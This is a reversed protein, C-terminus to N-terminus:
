NHITLSTSIKDCFVLLPRIVVIIITIIIMIMIMIMVM